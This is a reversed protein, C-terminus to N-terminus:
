PLVEVPTKVNDLQYNAVIEAIEAPTRIREIEQNNDNFWTETGDENQEVVMYATNHMHSKAYSIVIAWFDQLAEDKTDFLTHEGSYPNYVAYKTTM